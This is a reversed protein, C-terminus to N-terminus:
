LGSKLLIYSSMTLRSFPFARGAARGREDAGNRIVAQGFKVDLLGIGRDAVDLLM